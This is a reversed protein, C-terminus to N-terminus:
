LDRRLGDVRLCALVGAPIPDAKLLSVHDVHAYIFRGGGASNYPEVAVLVEDEPDEIPEQCHRCVKM